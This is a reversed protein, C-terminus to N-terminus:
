TNPMRIIGSACPDKMSQIYPWPNTVRVWRLCCARGYLMVIEIRMYYVRQAISSNPAHAFQQDRRDDREEVTEPVHKHTTRRIIIRVLIQNAM